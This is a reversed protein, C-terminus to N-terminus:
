ARVLFSSDECGWAGGVDGVLFRSGDSVPVCQEVVDDLGLIVIQKLASDRFGFDAIQHVFVAITLVLVWGRGSDVEDAELGDVYPPTLWWSSFVRDAWLM